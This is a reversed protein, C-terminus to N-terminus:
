RLLWGVQAAIEHPDANTNAIVTVNTAGGAAGTQNAPTVHGSSGFTVLEPGLEGVLATTGAGFNGGTALPQINPILHGPLHVGFFSIAGIASDVTNIVTNLGQIIENIITTGIAAMGSIAGGVASGIDGPLQRFGNVIPDYCNTKIWTWAGSLGGFVTSVISGLGSVLRSPLQIFYTILPQLVNSDIWTGAQLLPAFLFSVIDGMATLARQPLGTFFVIVPQLVNADVWTASTKLVGWITAVINGLATVIRGPLQTFFGVVANIMVLVDTKIQTWHQVLLAVLLVIGGTVIGLIEPWWKKVFGIIAKIADDFVKKTDNWLKVFFAAIQKWNAIVVIVIAALAVVAGIVIWMTATIPALAGDAAFLSITWAVTAALLAGGVIAALTILAPKCQMVWTLVKAGIAITKQIEPELKEGFTTGLNHVEARAIEMQGPLTKGYAAGAGQVKKTIADMIDGGTKQDLTLKQSALSVARQANALAQQAPVGKLTQDAVNQQVQTLKIQASQLATSATAMSSAKASGIDLNLGMQTLVRTSGAMVKALASSADGLSEGKMRALDAATSLLGMAKTPSGTATTLTTLAGATTTSNFGLKAMSDYSANIKPQLADINGGANKIATNMSAQATDFKDAMEVSAVGVAVLAAGGALVTAGGLTSLMAGFKQGKTNADDFKSGIKDFIGSVPLGTFNEISQGMKSFGNGFKSTASDVKSGIDDSVKAAQLGADDMAAQLQATDGLFQLTVTRTAM